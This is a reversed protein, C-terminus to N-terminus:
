GFEEARDWGLKRLAKDGSSQAVESWQFKPDPGALYSEQREPSSLNSAAVERPSQGTDDVNAQDSHGAGCASHEGLFM